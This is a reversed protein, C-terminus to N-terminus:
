RRMVEPEPETEEAPPSPCWANALGDGYMITVWSGPHGQKPPRPEYGEEVEPVDGTVIWAPFSNVAKPQRVRGWHGPMNLDPVVPHGPLDGGEPVIPYAVRPPRPLGQGPREPFGPWGPLGQDPYEPDGPLGQGPLSGEPLWNGPPRPTWPPRPLGQGPYEPFGPLGQDPYGPPLEPLGQGPGFDPVWVKVRQYGTVYM